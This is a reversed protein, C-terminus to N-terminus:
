QFEFSKKIKGNLPASNNDAQRCNCKHDHGNPVFKTKQFVHLALNESAIKNSIKQRDKKISQQMCANNIKGKKGEHINLKCDCWLCLFVCKFPAQVQM